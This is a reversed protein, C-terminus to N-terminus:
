SLMNKPQMRIDTWINNGTYTSEKAMDKKCDSQKTKYNPVYM